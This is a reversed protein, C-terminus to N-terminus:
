KTAEAKCHPCTINQVDEKGTWVHGEPWDKPLNHTFGCLPQGHLLAHVIAHQQARIKQKQM